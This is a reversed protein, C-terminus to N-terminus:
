LSVGLVGLLVANGGIGFGGPGPPLWAASLTGPTWISSCPCSGMLRGVWLHSSLGSPCRSWSHTLLCRSDFEGYWCTLRQMRRRHRM